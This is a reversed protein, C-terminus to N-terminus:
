PHLYAINYFSRRHVIGNFWVFCFVGSAIEISFANTLFVQIFQFVGLTIYLLGLGFIIRIRFLTLLLTAIIIYQLLLLLIQNYAVEM